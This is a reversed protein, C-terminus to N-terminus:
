SDLHGPYVGYSGVECALAMALESRTVLGKPVYGLENLLLSLIAFARLHAAEADLREREGDSGDDAEELAEVRMLAALYHRHAEITRHELTADSATSCPV